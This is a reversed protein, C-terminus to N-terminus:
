CSQKLKTLNNVALDIYDSTKLKVNLRIQQDVLDHFKYM